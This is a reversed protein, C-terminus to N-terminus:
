YTFGGRDRRLFPDVSTEISVSVGEIARVRDIDEDAICGGYIWSEQREASSQCHWPEYSLDLEFGALRLGAMLADRNAAPVSVIYYPRLKAIVQM